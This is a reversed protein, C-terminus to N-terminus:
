GSFAMNSEFSSREISLENFDSGFIAGGQTAVCNTFADDQFSASSSAELAVCGGVSARSKAYVNHRSEVNSDAGVYLYAGELNDGIDTNVPDTFFSDDRVWSTMTSLTIKLHSYAVHIGGHHHFVENDRVALISAEM